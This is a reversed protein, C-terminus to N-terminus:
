PVGEIFKPPSPDRLRAALQDWGPRRELNLGAIIKNHLAELPFENLLRLMFLPPSIGLAIINVMVGTWSACFRAILSHDSDPRFTYSTGIKSADHEMYDMVSSAAPHTVECLVRYCESILPEADSEIALSTLYQKVHRAQHFPPADEGKAIRRAHSFHILRNELGPCLAIQNLRGTVARRIVGHAEALQGPIENFADFTDASAELWGRFTAMFAHYNHDRFAAFVGDLWRRSRLLSACAGFHVRFLIERWYVEMAKSVNRALVRRFGENRMFDYTHVPAHSTIRDLVIVFSAASEGLVAVAAVHDM